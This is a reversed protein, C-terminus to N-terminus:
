RDDELIMAAGKEAIMITPANTNGTTIAPMISADIVRLGAIGHVRLRSDVVAMADEGMRCTGVPHYLTTGFACAYRALETDSTAEPGPETEGASYRVISPQDLIRRTFRLGALLARLDNPATLYNPTIVPAAFPDASAAMISGRSEPRVPCVAVSLGPERELAGFREPDHSAPTFSLQLDPSALGERSRCFVQATTIGFTLAGRGTVVFRLAECALRLGHAMQNVSLTGKVRHAIRAVYHDTLNSGVGALASLVPVGIAALHAPPGIGSIQLLQPSNVTGGSVIVSRAALAQHDEGGRRFAVGTCRAGKFLLRTAFADTEVRLNARNRAPALFSRATSQRFRGRRTMQSYGVGDQTRGNLDSSFPYGAAKAAAVFHHTLPLITRYDEVRLPGGRGRMAPDGQAYDESKMFFPLVDAFSWGRCGMQAWGDYDLPNGRVYLMGNISSSGGLVKGRPWRIPRGATGPGPEASFNWNLRPHHILKLTGAPIHIYPHHDRPGAEILLVRAGKESLRAAVVCGASGAGVIVYDADM